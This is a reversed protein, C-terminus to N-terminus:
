NTKSPIGFRLRFNERQRSLRFFEKITCYNVSSTMLCVDSSLDPRTQTAIWSLEGLLIKFTKWKRVMLSTKKWEPM